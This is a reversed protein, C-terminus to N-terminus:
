PRSKRTKRRRRGGKKKTEKLGLFKPVLERLPDQVRLREGTEDKGRVILEALGRSEIPVSPRDVLFFHNYTEPGDGPRGGYAKIGDWVLLLGTGMDTIERVTFKTEGVPNVVRVTDGVRIHGVDIPDGM